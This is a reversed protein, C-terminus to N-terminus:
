TQAQSDKQPQTSGNQLFLLASDYLMHNKSKWFATAGCEQGHHMLATSEPWDKTELSDEAM